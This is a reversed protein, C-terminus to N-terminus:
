ATEWGTVAMRSSLSSPRAPSTMRQLSRDSWPRATMGWIPFGLFVTTYQTVNAVKAKLPPEYGRDREQRAQEVTEFYDAPYPNEPEIELLDARLARSVQSAVVRTNGSRSFYAVLIKGESLQAAAAPSVSAAGGATLSLLLSTM